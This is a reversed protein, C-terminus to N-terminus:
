VCVISVINIEVTTLKTTSYVYVVIFFLSFNTFMSQLGSCVNYRHYFMCMCSLVYPLNYVICLFLVHSDDALM